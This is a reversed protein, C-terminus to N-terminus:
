SAEYAVYAACNVAAKEASEQCIDGCIFTADKWSQYGEPLM